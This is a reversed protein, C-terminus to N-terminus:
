FWMERYGWITVSSDTCKSFSQQQLNIDERKLHILITAVINVTFTLYLKCGQQESLLLGEGPRVMDRPNFSLSHVELVLALLVFYVLYHFLSLSHRKKLWYLCRNGIVLSGKKLKWNEMHLDAKCDHTM